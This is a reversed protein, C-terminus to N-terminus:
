GSIEDQRSHRKLSYEGRTSPTSERGLSPHANARLSRSGSTRERRGRLPLPFRPAAPAIRGAMKQNSAELQLFGIWMDQLKNKQISQIQKPNKKPSLTASIGLSTVNKEPHVNDSKQM